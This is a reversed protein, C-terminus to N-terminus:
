VPGFSGVQKTGGGTSSEMSQVGNVCTRCAAAKHQEDVNICPPGESATVNELTNHMIATCSPIKASTATFAEGGEVRVHLVVLVNYESSESKELNTVIALMQSNILQGLIRMPNNTTCMPRTQQAPWAGPAEIRAPGSGVRTRFVVPTTMRKRQEELWPSNLM